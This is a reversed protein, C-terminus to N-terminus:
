PRSTAPSTLLPGLSSRGRRLLTIFAEVAPSLHKGKLRLLHLSRRIPLGEVPLELLRGTALELTVTLRSVIALGLGAAVANKLAETSGLSMAPTLETGRQQLAAEIVDRTGSGAERMLVPVKALCACTVGDQQLLPHDPAVIAVMDDEAVAEVSLADSSVFGESLGLDVRNDLVAAQIQATNAIELSLTIGPYRRRFHGFLEPVLYGGITTSAGVSLSGKSLDSLAQLEREATESIALMREAHPLLMEGAPTLRVGRPLRDFLPARVQAELESLRKSVAPQTCGLSQAARTMTGLRTVAVFVRLTDLDM